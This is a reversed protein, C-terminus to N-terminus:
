REIRKERRSKKIRSSRPTNFLSPDSPFNPEEVLQEETPRKYRVRTTVAVTEEKQNAPAQMQLDSEVIQHELLHLERGLLVCLPPDKAVAVELCYSKRHICIEVDALPYTVPEGHLAKLLVTKDKIKEAAVLDKKIVTCM